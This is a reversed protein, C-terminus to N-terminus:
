ARSNELSTKKPIQSQFNVVRYDYKIESFDEYDVIGSQSFARKVLKPIYTASKNSCEFTLVFEPSRTLTYKLLLNMIKTSSGVYAGPSSVIGPMYVMPLGKAERVFYDKNLWPCLSLNSVTYGFSQLVGRDDIYAGLTSDPSKLTSILDEKPIMGSIPHDEVLGQFGTNYIEWIRDSYNDVEEPPIIRVSPDPQFEGLEQEKAKCVSRYHYIGAPTDNSTLLLDVTHPVPFGNYFPRTTEPYDVLLSLGNKKDRIKEITSKLVAHDVKTDLFNQPLLSYMLYDPNYGHKQLFETNFWHAYGVTSMLPLKKLEGTESDAIEIFETSPDALVAELESPELGEVQPGTTNREIVELYDHTAAKFGNEGLPPESEPYNGALFENGSPKAAM